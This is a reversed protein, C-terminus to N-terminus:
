LKVIRQYIIGFFIFYAVFLMNKNNEVKKELIKIKKELITLDNDIQRVLDDSSYYIPSSNISDNSSSDDM